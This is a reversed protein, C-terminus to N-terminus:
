NTNKQNNKHKESIGPKILDNGVITDTTDDPPGLDARTVTHHYGGGKGLRFATRKPPNPLRQPKTSKKMQTNESWERIILLCKKM